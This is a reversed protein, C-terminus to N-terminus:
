GATIVELVQNGLTAVSGVKDNSIPNGGSSTYRFTIERRKWNAGRRKALRYNIIKMVLGKKELPPKKQWLLSARVNVEKGRQISLTV